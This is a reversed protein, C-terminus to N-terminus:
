AFKGGATPFRTTFRMLISRLMEMIVPVYMSAMEALSSYVFMMGIVGAIIAWFVIATGGDQLAYVSLVPLM